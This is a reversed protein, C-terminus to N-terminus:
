RPVTITTGSFVLPNGNPLRRAGNARYLRAWQSGDGYMKEAITFYTDGQQVEYSTQTMMAQKQEVEEKAPLQLKDGVLIRNANTVNNVVAITPWMEQSGYVAESIKALSDDKQITYEKGAQPAMAQEQTQQTQVAQETVQGRRSIYNAVLLGLIVVIIAGLVISPYSEQWDIKGSLFKKFSKPM